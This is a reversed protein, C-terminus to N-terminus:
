LAVNVMRQGCVAQLHLVRILGNSMAPLEFRIGTLTGATSAKPHVLGASTGFSTAVDIWSGCAEQFATSGVNPEFVTRYLLVQDKYSESTSGISFNCPNPFYFLQVGPENEVMTILMNFFIVDGVCIVRCANAQAEVTTGYANNLANAFSFKSGVDGTGGNYFFSYARSAFQHTKSVAMWQGPYLAEEAADAPPVYVFEVIDGPLLLSYQPGIPTAGAFSQRHIDGWYPVGAGSAPGVFFLRGTATHHGELFVKLTKRPRAAFPAAATSSGVPSPVPLGRLWMDGGQNRVFSNLTIRVGACDPADIIEQMGNLMGSKLLDDGQDPMDYYRSSLQGAGFMGCYEEACFKRAIKTDTELEHALAKVGALPNPALSM